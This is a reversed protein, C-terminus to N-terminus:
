YIHNFIVDPFSRVKLLTSCTALMLFFKTDLKNNLLVLKLIINLLSLNISLLSVNIYFFPMMVIVEKFHIYYGNVLIIIFNDRRRIQNLRTIHPMVLETM